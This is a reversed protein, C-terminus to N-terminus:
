HPQLGYYYCVSSGSLSMIISKNAIYYDESAFIRWPIPQLLTVLHTIDISDDIAMEYRHLHRQVIEKYGHKIGIGLDLSGERLYNMIRHYYEMCCRNLHDIYVEELVHDLVFYGNKEFSIAADESFEM